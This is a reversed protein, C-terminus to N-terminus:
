LRVAFEVGFYRRFDRPIANVVASGGAAGQGGADLIM